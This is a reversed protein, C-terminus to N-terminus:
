FPSVHINSPPQHATVGEWLGGTAWPQEQQKNYRICAIPQYGDIGSAEAAQMSVALTHKNVMGPFSLHLLVM